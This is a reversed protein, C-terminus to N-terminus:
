VGTDEPTALPCQGSSSSMPRHGALGYGSPLLHQREEPISRLPLDHPHNPNNRDILHDRAQSDQEDDDDDDDDDDEGEDVEEIPPAQISPCFAGGSQQSQATQNLSNGATSHQQGQQGTAYSVVLREREEDTGDEKVNPSLSRDNANTHDLKGDAEAKKAAEADGSDKSDGNKGGGNKGDASASSCCLCCAMLLETLVQIGWILSAAFSIGVISWNPIDKFLFQEVILWVGLALPCCLLLAAILHLCCSNTFTIGLFCISTLVLVISWFGFAASLAITERDFDTFIKPILFFYSLVLATIPILILILNSVVLIWRFIRVTM